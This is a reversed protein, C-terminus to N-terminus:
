GFQTQLWDTLAQNFRDPCEDQPCHGVGEWELLQLRPNLPAFVKALIPPVMRDDLGWILLIPM